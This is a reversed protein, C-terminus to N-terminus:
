QRCLIVQLSARATDIKPNGFFLILNERSNLKEPGVLLTVEIIDILNLESISESSVKLKITLEGTTM